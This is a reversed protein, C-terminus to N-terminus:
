VDIYGIVAESIGCDCASSTVCHIEAGITTYFLSVECSILSISLIFIFTMHLTICTTLITCYITVLVM